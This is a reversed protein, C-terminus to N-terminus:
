REEPRWSIMILTCHYEHRASLPARVMFADRMLGVWPGGGSLNQGHRALGGGPTM